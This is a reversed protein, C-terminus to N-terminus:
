EAALAKMERMMGGFIADQLEENDKINAIWEGNDLPDICVIKITDIYDKETLGNLRAFLLEYFETM